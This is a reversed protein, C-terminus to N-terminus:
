WFYLVQVSFVSVNKFPNELLNGLNTDNEIKSMDRLHCSM